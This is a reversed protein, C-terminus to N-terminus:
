LVETEHTINPQEIVCKTNISFKNRKIIYSIHAINPQEFIHTSKVRPAPKLAYGTNHLITPMEFTCYTKVRPAPIFKFSTKHILFDIIDVMTQFDGAGVYLTNEASDYWYAGTDLPRDKDYPTVLKIKSDRALAEVVGSRLKSFTDDSLLDKVIETNEVSNFLEDFSSVPSVVKM